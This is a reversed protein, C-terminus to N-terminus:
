VFSSLKLLFLGLSSTLISVLTTTMILNAALADNGGMSKVMIFSATATPSVFLLFLVGLTIGQFGLGIAMATIVIPLIATKMAVGLFTTKSASRIAKLNMGAGCGLLALPLAMSGLYEGTSLAISPVPIEFFAVILALCISIILPNKAIDIIVGRFSVSHKANYFSLIFVSLINYTVTMSAMLLSALALGEKGFANACLALGVVGLNSRFCAQVFVGRDDKPYVLLVAIAWSLIFTICCAIISFNFVRFNLSEDIRIIVTFLLLPLCISFVLKTSVEVFQDNLFGIRRLILGLIVLVFIPGTVNLTEILISTYM